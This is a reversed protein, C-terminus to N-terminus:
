EASDDLDKTEFRSMEERSLSRAGISIGGTKWTTEPDKVINFEGEPSM